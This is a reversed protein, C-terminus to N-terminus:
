PHFHCCLAREVHIGAEYRHESGTTFKGTDEAFLRGGSFPLINSIGESSKRQAMHSSCIKKEEGRLTLVGWVM